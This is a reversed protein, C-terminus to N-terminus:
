PSKFDKKSEKEISVPDIELAEIPALFLFHPHQELFPLNLTIWLPGQWRQWTWNFTSNQLYACIPLYACPPWPLYKPLYIKIYVSCWAKAICYLNMAIWFHFCYQLRHWLNQYLKIHMSQCLPSAFRASYTSLINTALWSVSSVYKDRLYFKHWSSYSLGPTYHRRGGAVSWSTPYTSWATNPTPLYEQIPTQHPYPLCPPPNTPMGPDRCDGAAYSDSRGGGMWGGDIWEERAIWAIWVIVAM